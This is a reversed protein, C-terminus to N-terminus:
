DLSIHTRAQTILIRYCLDTLKMFRVWDDRDLFSRKQKFSASSRAMLIDKSPEQSLRDEVKSRTLPKIEEWLGMLVSQKGWNRELEKCISTTLPCITATNHIAPNEPKGVRTEAM